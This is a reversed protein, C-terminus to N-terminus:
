RSRAIFYCLGSRKVSRWNNREHRKLTKDHQQLEEEEEKLETKRM